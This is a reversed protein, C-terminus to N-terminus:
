KVFSLCKIQDLGPRVPKDVTNKERTVLFILSRSLYISKRTMDKLRITYILGLEETNCATKWYKGKSEKERAWCHTHTIWDMFLSPFLVLAICTFLFFVCLRPLCFNNNRQYWIHMLFVCVDTKFNVQKCQFTILTLSSAGEKMAFTDKADVDISQSHKGELGKFVGLWCYKPQRSFVNTLIHIFCRIYLTCFSHHFIEHAASLPTLLHRLCFRKLCKITNSFLSPCSVRWATWIVAYKFGCSRVHCQQDWCKHEVLPQSVGRQVTWM